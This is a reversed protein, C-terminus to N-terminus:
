ITLHLYTTPAPEALCRELDSPRIRITGRGLGIRQCPLRGSDCLDYITRISVALTDAAQKVTLLEPKPTFYDLLRGVVVLAERATATPKETDILHGAGHRCAEVSISELLEATEVQNFYDSGHIASLQDFTVQLHRAFESKDKMTNSM